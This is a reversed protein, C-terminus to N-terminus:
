FRNAIFLIVAKLGTKVFSLAILAVVPSLDIMGFSPIFRRFPALYPEVLKALLQGIFSERANPFWSLLIYAIIMCYYIQSLLDIYFFLYNLVV